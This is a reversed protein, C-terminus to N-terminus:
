TFLSLFTYAKQFNRTCREARAQQAALRRACLPVGVPPRGRAAIQPMPQRAAIHDAGRLTTQVLYHSCQGSRAFREPNVLM